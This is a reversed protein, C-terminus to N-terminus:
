ICEKYLQEYQEKIVKQSFHTQYYEYFFDNSHMICYNIAELVSDVSNYFLYKDDFIVEPIACCRSAIVPKNFLYAEIIPLGFGEGYEAPVMVFTSSSYLQFLNEDSVFGLLRVNLVKKIEIMKQLADYMPGKGAVVFFIARYKQATEIVLDIRARDELSRVILCYDKGSLFPYTAILRSSDSVFESAQLEFNSTNYIKVYNTGSLPYLSQSKTFDSIFHIHQCRKYLLQELWYFIYKRCGRAGLSKNQYYLGDHVTFLDTFRYLFVSMLTNHSHIFVKKANKTVIHKIVISLLLFRCVSHVPLSICVMKRYKYVKLVEGWHIYYCWENFVSSQFEIVNEVGRKHSYFGNYGLYIIRKM